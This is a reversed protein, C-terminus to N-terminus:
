FLERSHVSSSALFVGWILSHVACSSSNYNIFNIIFSIFINDCVENIWFSDLYYKKLLVINTSWCTALFFHFWKRYLLIWQFEFTHTQSGMCRRCAMLSLQGPQCRWVAFAPLPGCLSVGKWAAGVEQTIRCRFSVWKNATNEGQWEQNGRHSRSLKVISHQGWTFVLCAGERLVGSIACLRSAKWLFHYNDLDVIRLHSRPPASAWFFIIKCKPFM